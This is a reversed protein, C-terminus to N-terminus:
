TPPDLPWRQGDPGTITRARRALRLRTSPDPSLASGLAERLLALRWRLGPKTISKYYQLIGATLQPDHDEVLTLAEQFLGYLLYITVLRVLDLPRSEEEQSNLWAAGRLFVVDAYAARKRAWPLDSRVFAPELVWTGFGKGRLYQEVESFRPQEQYFEAFEVECEIGLLQHLVSNEGSRIIELESGQTDVKMFDTRAPLEGQAALDDLAITDIEIVDEVAWSRRTAVRPNPALLSSVEPAATTYFPRSQRTEGVAYPLVHASRWASSTLSANLRECEQRDPEFGILDIHEALPLFRTAPAGRAGIDLVCLSQGELFERLRM